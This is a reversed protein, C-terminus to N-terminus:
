EKKRSLFITVSGHTHLRRVYAFSVGANRIENHMGALLGHAEQGPHWALDPGLDAPSLVTLAVYEGPKPVEMEEDGAPADVVVNSVNLTMEGRLAGAAQVGAIMANLLLAVQAEDSEADLILPPREIRLDSYRGPLSETVM